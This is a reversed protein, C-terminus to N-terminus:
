YGASQSVAANHGESTPPPMGEKWKGSKKLADAVEPPMYSEDHKALVEHAVFQNNADMKGNAVIGQGERFLDPLIGDYSVPMSAAGDTIDFVVKLSGENRRVSGAVVLGGVRFTRGEPVDGAKVETPSRFLQINQDFAYVMLGVAISVGVVMLSILILKQKRKPTM